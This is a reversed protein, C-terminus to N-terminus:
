VRVGSFVVDRVAKWIAGKTQRRDAASQVPVIMIVPRDAYAHPPRSTLNCNAPLSSINQPIYFAYVAAPVLSSKGGQIM